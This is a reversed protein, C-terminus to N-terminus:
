NNYLDTFNSGYKQIAYDLYPQIKDKDIFEIDPYQEKKAKNKLTYFGKIEVLKGNVIFDPYFKYIKGDYLYEFYDDNRQITMDHDLCYIVFALEWSSDCWINNYYGRKYYSHTTEPKLGGVQNAIALESLKKHREARMCDDSCYRFSRNDATRVYVNGCHQCIYTKRKDKYYLKLTDSRKQNLESQNSNMKTLRNSCLKSCCKRYKGQLYEKNSVFVEYEKGCVACNVTFLHKGNRERHTSAAKSIIADRNPNQLCKLYHTGLERGTEFEKGCYKCKHSM